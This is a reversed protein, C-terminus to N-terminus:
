WPQSKHPDVEQLEYTSGPRSEGAVLGGVYLADAISRAGLVGEESGRAVSAPLAVAFDVGHKYTLDRMIKGFLIIGFGGQGCPGIPLFITPIAIGEPLGKLCLRTFYIAMQLFSIPV